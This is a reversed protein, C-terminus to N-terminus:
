KLRIYTEGDSFGNVKIFEKFQKKTPKIKFPILTDRHTETMKELNTIEEDSSIENIMLIGDKLKLKKVEWSNTHTLSNLFYYGRFKKLVNGEPLYLLTDIYKENPITDKNIYIKAILNKDISLTASDNVCFYEGQLRRPIKSLSNVNEPQPESFTVIPEKCSLIFIFLILLIYNARRM